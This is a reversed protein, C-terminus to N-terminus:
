NNRNAPPLDDIVKQVTELTLRLAQAIQELSLGLDLLGPIGELKGEAKVDQYFRTQQWETLGFM